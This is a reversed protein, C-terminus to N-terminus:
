FSPKTQKQTEKKINLDIGDWNLTIKFKETKITISADKEMSFLMQQYRGGNKGIYIQIKEQTLVKLESSEDVIFVVLADDSRKQEAIIAPLYSRSYPNEDEKFMFVDANDIFHDSEKSDNAPPYFRNDGFISPAPWPLINNQDIKALVGKIGIHNDIVTLGEYINTGFVTFCKM